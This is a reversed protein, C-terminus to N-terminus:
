DGLWRSAASPLDALPGQRLTCAPLSRIFHPGYSKSLVRRDFVVAVGRDSRTRILRGFGQRFRLIAEPVAYQNFPSEYTEARSAAIPDTPVGFPLRMIALVSLAPGPVDVGEWFSRTGLLVAKETTRFSELLV